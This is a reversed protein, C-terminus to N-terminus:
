KDGMSTNYTLANVETENNQHTKPYNSGKQRLQRVKLIHPLVTNM